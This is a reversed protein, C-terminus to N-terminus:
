PYLGSSERRKRWRRLGLDNDHCCLWRNRSRHGHLPRKWECKWSARIERTVPLHDANLADLLVVLHFHHTRISLYKPLHMSSLSIVPNIIVFYYGLRIYIQSVHAFMRKYSWRCVVSAVFIMNCICVNNTAHYYSLIRINWFLRSISVANSGKHAWVKIWPRERSNNWIHMEVRIFVTGPSLAGNNNFM